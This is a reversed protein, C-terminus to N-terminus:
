MLRQPFDCALVPRKKDDVFCMCDARARSTVRPSLVKIGIHDDEALRYTGTNRARSVPERLFNGVADDGLLFQLIAIDAANAARQRAIGKRERRHASCE